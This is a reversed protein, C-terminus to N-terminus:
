FIDIAFNTVEVRYDSEILEIAKQIIAEAIKKDNAVVAIGFISRQWKDLYDVEAVSVNFKNRIKAKISRLVFRKAKLSDSEPIFLEIQGCAVFM